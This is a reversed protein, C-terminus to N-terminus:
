KDILREHNFVVGKRLHSDLLNPQFLVKILHSQLRDAPLLDFNLERTPIIGCAAWVEPSTPPSRVSM